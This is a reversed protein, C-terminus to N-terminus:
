TVYKLYSKFKLCICFAWLSKRINQKCNKYEDTVLTTLIFTNENREKNVKSNNLAKLNGQKM